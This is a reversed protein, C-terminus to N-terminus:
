AVPGPPALSAAVMTGPPLPVQAQSNKSAGMGPEDCIVTVTSPPRMRAAASPTNRSASPSPWAPPRRWVTNVVTPWVATVPVLIM